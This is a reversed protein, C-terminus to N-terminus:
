LGGIVTLDTTKLLCGNIVGSPNFRQLDVLAMILLTGYIKNIIHNLLEWEADVRDTSVPPVLELCLKVPMDLMFSDPM